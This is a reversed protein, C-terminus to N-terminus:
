REDLPQPAPRRRCRRARQRSTSSLDRANAVTRGACGPWAQPVAGGANPRRWGVHRGHVIEHLM